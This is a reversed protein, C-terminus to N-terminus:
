QLRAQLIKLMLKTAHSITLGLIRAKTGLLFFRAVWYALGASAIALPNITSQAFPQSQDGPLCLVGFLLNPLSKMSLFWEILM